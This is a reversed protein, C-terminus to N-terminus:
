VDLGMGFVAIGPEHQACLPEQGSSGGPGGVNELSQIVRGAPRVDGEGREQVGRVLLRLPRRGIGPASLDCPKWSEINRRQTGSQSATGARGRPVQRFPHPPQQSHDVAGNDAVLREKVDLEDDKRLKGVGRRDILSDILQSVSQGHRNRILM